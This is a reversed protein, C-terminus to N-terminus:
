AHELRTSRYLEQLVREKQEVEELSHTAADVRRQIEQQEHERVTTYFALERQADVLKGGWYVCARRVVDGDRMQLNGSPAFCIRVIREAKKEAETASETVSAVHERQHRVLEELQVTAETAGVGKWFEGCEKERIAAVREALKASMEEEEEKMESKVMEEKGKNNNNKNDEDDDHRMKKKSPEDQLVKENLLQRATAPMQNLVLARVVRQTSDDEVDNDEEQKEDEKKDSQQQQNLSLSRELSNRRVRKCKLFSRENELAVRRKAEILWLRGSPTTFDIPEETEVTMIEREVPVTVLEENVSSNSSSSSTPQPAPLTAFLDDSPVDVPTEKKQTTTVIDPLTAFLDDLDTTNNNNNNGSNNVANSASDSQSTIGTETEMKISTLISVSKKNELRKDVGTTTTGSALRLLDMNVGEKVADDQTQRASSASLNKVLVRQKAQIGAAQKDAGLDIPQFSGQKREKLKKQKQAEKNGLEDDDDNDAGDEVINDQLRTGSPGALDELMAREMRKKAKASLTGSEISERNSELKALFSTHELQKKREKRLGKKGDQNALRSVAFEVMEKEFVDSNVADPRAARTEYGQHVSRQRRREELFDELTLSDNKNNSNNKNNDKSGSSSGGDGDTKRRQRREYELADLLSHYHEECLWPPRNMGTRHRLEQAILGWQQPFLSHLQVLAAEESAMWAEQLNLRPDLYSEWRERCQAATKRVLMSAVREWNHLGYVALSARLVEDESNTWAGGKFRMRSM